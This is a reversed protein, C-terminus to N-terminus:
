LYSGEVPIWVDRHLLGAASRRGSFFAVSLFYLFFLRAADPSSRDLGFLSKSARPNALAVKPIKQHLKPTAGAGTYIPPLRPDCSPRPDEGFDTKAVLLLGVRIGAHFAVSDPTWPCFALSWPTQAQGGLFNM